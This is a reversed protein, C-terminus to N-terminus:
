RFQLWFTSHLKIPNPLPLTYFPQLYVLWYIAKTIWTISSPLKYKPPPSISSISPWHFEFGTCPLCKINHNTPSLHRCNWSAVSKMWVFIQKSHLIFFSPLPVRLLLWPVRGDGKKNRYSGPILCDRLVSFLSMSTPSFVHPNLEKAKQVMRRQWSASLLSYQYLQAYLNTSFLTSNAKHLM